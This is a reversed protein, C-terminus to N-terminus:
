NRWCRAIYETRTGHDSYYQEAYLGLVNGELDFRVVMTRKQYSDLDFDMKASVYPYVGGGQLDVSAEPNFVEFSRTENTDNTIKLVKGDFKTKCNKPLTAEETMKLVERVSILKSLSYRAEFISQDIVAKENELKRVKETLDRATNVKEKFDQASVSLAGLLISLLILKM